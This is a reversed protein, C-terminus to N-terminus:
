IATCIKLASSAETFNILHAQVTGNATNVNTISTQMRTLVDAGRTGSSEEIFSQTAVSDISGQIVRNYEDIQAQNNLNTIVAGQIIALSQNFDPASNVFGKNFQLESNKVALIVEESLGHILAFDRTVSKRILHSNTKLQTFSEFIASAHIKVESNGELSDIYQQALEMDANTMGELEVLVKTLENKAEDIKDYSVTTNLVRPSTNIICQMRQAGDLYQVARNSPQTYAKGSMAAAFALGGATVWDTKNQAVGYGTSLASLLGIADLYTGTNYASNSREVYRQRYYDAFAYARCMKKYHENNDDGCTDGNFRADTGLVQAWADNEMIPPELNVCGATLLLPVSLITITRIM